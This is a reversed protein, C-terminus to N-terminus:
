ANIPPTATNEFTAKEAYVRNRCDLLTIFSKQLLSPAANQTIQNVGRDVIAHQLAHGRHLTSKTRLDM